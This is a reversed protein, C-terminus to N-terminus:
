WAWFPLRFSLWLVLFGSIRPNPKPQRRKPFYHEFLPRRLGLAIECWRDLVHPDRKPDGRGENAYKNNKGFIVGCGDWPLWSTTCWTTSPTWVIFGQCVTIPIYTIALNGAILIVIPMALGIIAYVDSTTSNMIRSRPESTERLTGWCLWLASFVM